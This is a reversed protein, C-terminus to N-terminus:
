PTDAHREKKARLAYGLAGGVPLWFLLWEMDANVLLLDYDVLFFIAANFLLALYLTASLDEGQRFGQGLGRLTGSILQLLVALGFLGGYYLAAVYLSHPQYITQGNSLTLEFPTRYGLGFFPHRQWKGLAYEWIELRFSDWRQTWQQLDILSSALFVAVSGIIFVAAIYAKNVQWRCRVALFHWLLLAHAMMAALFAGRSETEILAVALVLWCGLWVSRIILKQKEKQLLYGAIILAVGYLTASQVPNRGRGLGTLREPLIEQMSYLYLSVAASAAGALVMAWLVRKEYIHNQLVAASIIVFLLVLGGKRLVEALEEGNFVPSWSLSAAQYFIYLLVVQSLRQQSLERLWPRRLQWLLAVAVLLYFGNRHLRVEDLWFFLALFLTYATAVM